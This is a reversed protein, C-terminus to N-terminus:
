ENGAEPAPEIAGVHAVHTLRSVRRGRRLLGRVLLYRGDMHAADAIQYWEPTLEVRAKVLEDFERSYLSLVVDGERQNDDNLNGRLEDVTAVFLDREPDRQPTLRLYVDEIVEFDDPQFRVTRAGIEGNEVPMSPAWSISCEVLAGETEPRLRLLADCLNASIVPRNPQEDLVRAPNDAHISDALWDLSDKLYRTAARAFPTMHGLVEQPADVARLPCSIAAVFSGRETQEFRCARLLQDADRRSLRPHFQIPRMVSHAASLISKRVGDFLAVADLLALSGRETGASAVSVRIVDADHNLIDGLVQEASRREIEALKWVADSVRNAFDDTRPDNPVLIQDLNGGPWRLVAYDGRVGETREWGKARAYARVDNPTVRRLSDISLRSLM